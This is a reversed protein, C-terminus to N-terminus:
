AEFATHKRPKIKKNRCSFSDSSKKGLLVYTNGKGQAKWLSGTMNAPLRLSPILEKARERSSLASGLLLKATDGTM